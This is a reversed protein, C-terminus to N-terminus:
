PTVPPQQKEERPRFFRKSFFSCGTVAETYVDMSRQGARACVCKCVRTRARARVCARMKCVLYTSETLVSMFSCIDLNQERGRRGGTERELEDQQEACTDTLGLKQNRHNVDSISPSM